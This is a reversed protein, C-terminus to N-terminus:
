CSYSQRDQKQGESTRLSPCDVRQGEEGAWRYAREAVNNKMGVQSGGKGVEEHAERRGEVGGAEEEPGSGSHDTSELRKGRWCRRGQWWWRRRRWPTRRVGQSGPGKKHKM